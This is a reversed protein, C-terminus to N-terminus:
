AFGDQAQLEAIGASIRDRVAERLAAFLAARRLLSEDFSVAALGLRVECARVVSLGELAARLSHVCHDCHMGSVCITLTTM